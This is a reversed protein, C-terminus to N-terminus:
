DVSIKDSRYAMITIEKVDKPTNPRQLCHKLDTLLVAEHFYSISVRNPKNIKNNYGYDTESKKELFFTVM